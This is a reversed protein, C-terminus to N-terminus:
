TETTSYAHLQVQLVHVHTLLSTSLCSCGSLEPCIVKRACQLANTVMTTGGSERGERM